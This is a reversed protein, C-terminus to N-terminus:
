RSFLVPSTMHALLHSTTAGIVFDYLRSHGFAGTVILDAGTDAAENLLEDGIAIQSKPRHSVVTKIGHRDLSRALDHGSEKLAGEATANADTVWFIRSEEGQQMFPIADHAARAAEGTGSWGILTRQGITKFEGVRPIVLVPRGSHEIVRRQAAALAPSDLDTDTQSMVVLDVCRALEAVQEGTAAVSTEIQRWEAAFDEAATHKEFVAKVREAQAEQSERLQALAAGTLQMSVSAYVEMNQLAYLGILHADFQRALMIAVPMLRETEAENNLSVLLTKFNM